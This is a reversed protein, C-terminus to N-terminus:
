LKELILSSAKKGSLLMGGFIAGMRHSGAVANAAMGCVFLGPYVEKTNELLAVEGKEAWMSKEGAVKLNDGIKREVIRCIESDHGTADVVAKAKIGLPDVHLHAIDIASWNIVIGTVQKERIIVDEVSILNFIKAGAKITKLTFASITEVADATFLNDTYKKTRIGFEKMIDIAEKQIVIRNFMMGGGPMGGGIKLHREFVAVKKGASALYFACILGSPGAGAIAVDVDLHSTLEKIYTEVIAKSIIHEEMM